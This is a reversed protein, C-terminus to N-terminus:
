GRGPIIEFGRRKFQGGMDYLVKEVEQAIRNPSEGGQVSLNVTPSFSNNYTNQNAPVVAEGRHLMAMGTKPVFPTGHQYSGFPKTGWAEGTYGFAGTPSPGYGFASVGEAMASKLKNWKEAQQEILQSLAMFVGIYTETKETLKDFEKGIDDIPKELDEYSEKLEENADVAEDTAESAKDLVEVALGWAENLKDLTNKLEEETLNLTKAHEIL